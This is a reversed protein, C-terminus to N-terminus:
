DPKVKDLTKSKCFPSISNFLLKTEAIIEDRNDGELEIEQKVSKEGEVIKVKYSKISM